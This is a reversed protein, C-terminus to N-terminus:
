SEDPAKAVIVRAPRLLRGRLQYGRQVVSLVTNPEVDSSPQALVAEHVSADFPEGHPDITVVDCRQLAQELLKATAAQGAVLAAVDAKDANAIALDLSDKVPLLEQALREAGFKHAQEVDRQARKRVNDLEAAARLYQEWHGRAREESAALESRLQTLDDVVAASEPLVVTEEGAIAPEGAKDTAEQGTDPM